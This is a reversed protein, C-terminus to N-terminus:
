AEEAVAGRHRGVRENLQTAHAGPKKGSVPEAIQQLDPPLLPRVKVIGLGVFRRRQDAPVQPEAHRLPHAVVARHLVRQVFGPQARRGLRQALDPHLRHRDAEQIREQAGLVLPPGARDHMLHQRIREDRGRVLDRRFETLVLAHARRHDVGIQARHHAAVDLPQAGPQGRTPQTGRRMQRLRVAPHDTEVGRGAQRHARHEGPRGGPTTAACASAVMTPIGSSIVKSM